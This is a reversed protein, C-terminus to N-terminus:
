GFGTGLPACRGCRRGRVLIVFMDFVLPASLVASVFVGGPDFYNQGAFDRWRAAGLANLREALYVVVVASRLSLSLEIPWNLGRDANGHQWCSRKGGPDSAVRLVQTNNQLMFM